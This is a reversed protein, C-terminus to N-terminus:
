TVFCFDGEKCTTYLEVLVINSLHDVPAPMHSPSMPIKCNHAIEFVLEKCEHSALFRCILDPVVIQGALPMFRERVVKLTSLIKYVKLTINIIQQGTFGMTTM